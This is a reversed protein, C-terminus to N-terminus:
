IIMLVKRRRLLRCSSVSFRTPRRFHLAISFTLTLFVSDASDQLLAPSPSFLLKIWINLTPAQPYNPPKKKPSSPLQHFLYFQLPGCHRHHHLIIITTIIIIELKNGRIWFRKVKSDWWLFQFMMLTLFSDRRDLAFNAELFQPFLNSKLRKRTEEVLFCSSM